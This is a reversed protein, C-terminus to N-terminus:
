FMFTNEFKKLSPKFVYEHKQKNKFFYSKNYKSSTKNHTSINEITLIKKKFEKLKKKFYDAKRKYYNMEIINERIIDDLEIETNKKPESVDTENEIVRNSEIANEDNQTNQKNVDNQNNQKNGDNYYNQNIKDSTLQIKNLTEDPILTFFLNSLADKLKILEENVIEKFEFDEIKFIKEILFKKRQISGWDKKFILLLM